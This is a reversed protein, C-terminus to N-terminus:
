QQSFTEVFSNRCLINFKLDDVNTIRINALHIAIKVMGQGTMTANGVIMNADTTIKVIVAQAARTATGEIAEIVVVTMMDDVLTVDIIVTAGDSTEILRTAM